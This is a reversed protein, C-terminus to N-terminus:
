CHLFYEMSPIMGDLETHHEFIARINLPARM